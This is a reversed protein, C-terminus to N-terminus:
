NSSEFKFKYTVGDFKYEGEMEDATLSVVNMSSAFLGFLSQDTNSISSVAVIVIKGDLTIAWTGKEIESPDNSECKSAGENNVYSQAPDNSFTYVNDKFCTNFNFSQVAEGTEQVTGRALTWTKSKGKQGALLAGQKEAGTPEPDDEKCSLLLVLAILTLLKSKM